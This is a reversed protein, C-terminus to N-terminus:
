DTIEVKYNVLAEYVNEHILGKWQLALEKIYKEKVEKYVKFAEEPNNFYGLSFVKGGKKIQSKFKKGRLTVGLPLNGRNTKNNTLVVNVENPVFCCTEPSYIKNGKILIDKDLCWGEIYFVEYWEAFKQFDHWEKCVSCGIYSPHKKHRKKNYCREFMGKWCTYVSKHIGKDSKKYVGKSNYGIGYM